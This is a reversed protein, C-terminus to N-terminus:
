ECRSRCACLMSSSPVMEKWYTWFSPSGLLRMLYQRYQRQLRAQFVAQVAKASTKHHGELVALVMSGLSEMSCRKYARRILSVDLAQGFGNRPQCRDLTATCTHLGPKRNSVEFKGLRAAGRQEGMKIMLAFGPLSAASSYLLCGQM